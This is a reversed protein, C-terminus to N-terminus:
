SVGSRAALWARQARVFAADVVAGHGPVYRADEGGLELLRDLAAPWHAPVADPGAQPEGSEEVLDGCLVVVPSGPVLVALDHGTHGPGVNALLVQLGGGLDLTLEGSVQHRPVVLADTAATADREDMGHRVADARLEAAGRSLLEATGVAGYVEAGAFAATGLVHDFHPHSLAIHTVRRGLLGEAGARLAAGERLTSGTDYLLARDTGAVLAATADWGPLRRRGTREGLREWGLDEWAVDM